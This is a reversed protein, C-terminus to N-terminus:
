VFKEDLNLKLETNEYMLSLNLLKMDILTSSNIVNLDDIQKDFAERQTNLEANHM